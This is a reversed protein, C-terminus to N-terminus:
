KGSGKGIRLARLEDKQLPTIRYSEIAKQITKNHVWPSLRFDKLYPLIVDYQKALATAFYWAIMMNVYYEESCITAVRDSYEPSFHEDLFYRMLLGIAYRVTYPHDSALWGDIAPLLATPNKAFVAPPPLDCTAWNDIYPLFRATEALAEDLDNIQAILMSHLNNEEYYEHPLNNLFEAVDATKAFKKAYDRLVPIRVGIIRSPDVTPMLKAHFSQYEPDRLSFLDNQVRKIVDNM